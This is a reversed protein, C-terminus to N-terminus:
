PERSSPVPSPSGPVSARERSAQTEETRESHGLVETGPEGNGTGRERQASLPLEVVFPMSQEAYTEHVHPTPRKVVSEM